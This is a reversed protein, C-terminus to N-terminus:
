LIKSQVYYYTKSIIVAFLYTVHLFDNLKIKSLRTTQECWKSKTQGECYYYVCTCEDNKNM